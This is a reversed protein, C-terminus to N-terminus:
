PADAFDRPDNIGLAARAEDKLRAVVALAVAVRKMARELDAEAKIVEEQADAFQKGFSRRRAM